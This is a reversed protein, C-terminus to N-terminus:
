LPVVVMPPPIMVILVSVERPAVGPVAVAPLSLMAAADPMRELAVKVTLALRPM